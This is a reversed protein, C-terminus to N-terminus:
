SNRREVMIKGIDSTQDGAQVIYLYIGNALPEGKDNVLSWEYVNQGSSLSGSHVQRGTASYVDFAGSSVGPPLQYYLHAQDKEPNVPNPGFRVTLEKSAQKQLWVGGEDEEWALYPYDNEDAEVKKINWDSNQFTFIDKMQSTPKGTGAGPEARGSTETDWYSGVVRGRDNDGVLGGADSDGDVTGTAYSRDVKGENTGVVGGVSGSGTVTSTAYSDEVTGDDQNMGVLGGVTSAEGSVQGTAYSKEVTGDNCGVIGGVFSKGTIDVDELGVHTIEADSGAAGFPGIYDENPRNITLGKITYGSGNLAGRFENGSEGIPDFGKGGSAVGDYGETSENLDNVLIYHSDLDERVDDLHNWNEIEYPEEKTGHGRIDIKSDGPINQLTPRDDGPKVEWVDSFNWTEEWNDPDTYFSETRFEERSMNAGWPGNLDPERTIETGGVVVDMDQNAYNHTVSEGSEVPGVRALGDVGGEVETKSNFAISDQVQPASVVLGAYKRSHEYTNNVDGTSYTHKIEADQAATAVFGAANPYSIAEINGTSYSDRISGGLVTGVFGGGGFKTGHGREEVDVAAYSETIETDKTLVAFGGTKIGSLDRPAGSADGTAYSTSITSNRITGAFGGKWIAQVNTGFGPSTYLDGKAASGEVSVSQMLGAFGGIGGYEIAEQLAPQKDKGQFQMDGIKVDAKCNRIPITGSATEDGYVTGVFGGVQLAAGWKNAAGKNITGKVSNNKIVFDGKTPTDSSPDAIAGVFGGSKSLIPHETISMGVALKINEVSCSDVVMTKDYDNALEGVLGGMYGISHGKNETPREDVSIIETDKVTSDVIEGGNALGALGGVQSSVTWYGFPFSSDKMLDLNSAKCNEITTNESKGILGGIFSEGEFPREAQFIDFEGNKVTCNTIEAGEAEGALAGAKSLTKMDVTEITLDKVVAGQGLKGFLGQNDADRTIQLSKIQYGNGDFTGTFTGIPEWGANPNDVHEDYDATNEDLDNGLVYDASLDNRVNNLDNWNNIETAALLVGNFGFVLTLALLSVLVKTRKSSM